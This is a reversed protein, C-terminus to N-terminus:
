PSRRRRGRPASPPVAALSRVLSLIHRRVQPHRIKEYATVIEHGEAVSPPPQYARQPSAEAFGPGMAAETRSLGEFFYSLDVQFLVSLGWLQTAKIRDIGNEFKQYQQYSVDDAAKAAERQKLGLEERRARIKAAIHLEAESLSEKDSGRKAV